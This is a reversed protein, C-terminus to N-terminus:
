GGRAWKRLAGCNHCLMECGELMQRFREWSMNKVMSLPLENGERLFEFVPTPFTNGCDACAGGKLAVAQEVKEEFKLRKVEEQCAKCYSLPQGGKRSHFAGRDKEQQCRACFARGPATAVIYSRRNNAGLPSCELCFRRGSLRRVQGDVEIKNPFEKGCNECKPM